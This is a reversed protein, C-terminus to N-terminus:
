TKPQYDEFEWNGIRAIKLAIEEWTNGSCSECYKTLRNIIREINYEFVLLKGRGFVIHSTDHNELLWQPTCVEIGFIDGGDKGKIGVTLELLFSFCTDNDPYYTKFDLIDPSIISKVEAVM